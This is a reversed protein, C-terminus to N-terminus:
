LTNYIFVFFPSYIINIRNYISSLVSFLFHFLFNNHSLRVEFISLYIFCKFLVKPQIFFRLQSDVFCVGDLANQFLLVSSLVVDDVMDFMEEVQALLTWFLWHNITPITHYSHYLSRSFYWSVTTFYKADRYRETTTTTRTEGCRSLTSSEWERIWDGKRSLKTTGVVVVAVADRRLATRGVIILVIGM